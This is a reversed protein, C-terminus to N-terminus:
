FHEGNEYYSSEKLVTFFVDVNEYGAKHIFNTISKSVEDQTEQGRDFWVLEILPYGDDIKGDKIFTSSICEITFYERPCKVIKELEDIMETSIVSIKNIDVGRMKIQPM